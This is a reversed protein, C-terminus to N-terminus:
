YHLEEEMKKVQRLRQGFGEKDLQEALERAKAISPEAQGCFEVNNTWIYARAQRMLVGSLLIRRHTDDPLARALTEAEALQTFGEERLKCAIVGPTCMVNACGLLSLYFPYDTSEKEINNLASEYKESALFVEGKAEFWQGLRASAIALPQGKLDHLLAFHYAEQCDAGWLKLFKLQDERNSANEYLHMPVLLGQCIVNVYETWLQHQEAMMLASTFSALAGAIKGKERLQAGQQVFEAIQSCIASLAEDENKRTRKSM